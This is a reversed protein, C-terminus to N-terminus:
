PGCLPPLPTVLKKSPPPPRDHHLTPAIMKRFQGGTVRVNRSITPLPRPIQLTSPPQQGGEGAYSAEQRLSDRAPCLSLCRFFRV